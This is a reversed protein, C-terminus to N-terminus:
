SILSSLLKTMTTLPCMLRDYLLPLLLGVASTATPAESGLPLLSRVVQERLYRESEHFRPGAFSLIGLQFLLNPYSSQFRTWPQPM